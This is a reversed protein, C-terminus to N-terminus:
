RTPTAAIPISAPSWASAQFKKRAEETVASKLLSQYQVEYSAAMEPDNATPGFNRQFQSIYILSAQVLLDPLYTSIFTYESDALGVVANKYLSPMRVTGKALIPYAQDPAPGFLIYTYLNGGGALDGGYMAFFKPEGTFSSDNYTNQLFEKTAPLLPVKKTGVEVQLTEITVFDDVDIELINNGQTLNFTRSTQTQLLDLDRQIRLEAYNLMQPIIANFSADVGQVVGGVTQTNVVAMTAVQTVYGNYSLPNTQPASM